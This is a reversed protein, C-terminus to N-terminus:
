ATEGVRILTKMATANGELAEFAQQVSALPHRDTILRAVDLGDAIMAIAQDYDVAEYVRAGVMELERWFFRFLDVQAPKAHIAVMCIRGRTAAAATMLDVGAQTGSVEFVVDAGKSATIENVRDAVAVERPNLGTFGMEEAMRLRNPNIESLIINAGVHKAVIAILMGIPGGGIVLATEGPQLRARRVDHVAVALPEIMAATELSMGAPLKHLTHAPVNWKEQLAGDTDLGLFKLKHCIHTYGERCAPCEGCHALPRVVVRDGPAFGEVGEGVAAVTGSM